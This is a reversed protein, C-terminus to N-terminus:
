RNALRQRLYAAALVLGVYVTALAAGWLISTGVVIVLGLGCGVQTGSLFALPFLLVTIAWRFEDVHAPRADDMHVLAYVYLSIVAVLHILAFLVVARGWRGRVIAMLSGLESQKRLKRDRADAYIAGCEPCRGTSSGSLDYSCQPCRKGAFSWRPLWVPSMM